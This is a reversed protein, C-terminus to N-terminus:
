AGKRLEHLDLHIPFLLHLLPSISFLFHSHVYANSVIIQVVMIMIQIDSDYKFLLMLPQFLSEISVIKHQMIINFYIYSRTLIHLSEPASITVPLKFNRIICHWV